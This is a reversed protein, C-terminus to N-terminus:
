VMWEWRRGLLTFLSTNHPAFYDALARLLGPDPEPYPNVNRNPVDTRTESGLGLFAAARAQATGARLESTEVVLLQERPYVWLWRELQEAYRSRAFYGRRRVPNDERDWWEADHDQAVAEAHDPDLAVSIPRDEFGCRVSHHYGSVARAVPDRLIALLRVDPLVAQMRSPVAPHVLYFPTAEGSRVPEGHKSAARAREAETPFHARYWDLGRERRDFHHVEKRLAPLVRPHAALHAYLTSTGAKQAGIIVFDPLPRKAANIRRSAVLSSSIADRAFGPVAGRVGHLAGDLRM